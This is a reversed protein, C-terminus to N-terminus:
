FEFRKILELICGILESLQDEDIAGTTGNTRSYKTIVLMYQNLIFVDADRDGKKYSELITQLSAKKETLM